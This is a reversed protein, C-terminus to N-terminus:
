GGGIRGEVGLLSPGRLQARGLGGRDEVTPGSGRNDKQLEVPSEGVPGSAGKSDGTVM